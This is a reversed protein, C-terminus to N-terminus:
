YELFNWHGMRTEYQYWNETPTWTSSSAATCGALLPPGMYSSFPSTTPTTIEWSFLIFNALIDPENGSFTFKPILAEVTLCNRVADPNGVLHDTLDLGIDVLCRALIALLCVTITTQWWYSWPNNLDKIIPDIDVLLPRSRSPAEAERIYSAM